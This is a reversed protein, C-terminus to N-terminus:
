LRRAVAFLKFFVKFSSGRVLDNIEWPWARYVSTEWENEPFAETMYERLIAPTIEQQHAHPDASGPQLDLAHDPIWRCERYEPLALFGDDWYEFNPTTIALVKATAERCGELFRVSQDAPIHEIVELALTLDFSSEVDFIDTYTTLGRNQLIEVKVPDVEVAAYRRPEISRKYRIFWDVVPRDSSGVDLLSSFSLDFEAACQDVLRLVQTDNIEGCEVQSVSMSGRLNEAARLVGSASIM